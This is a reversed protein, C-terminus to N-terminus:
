GGSQMQQFAAMDMHFLEWVHGDPDAIARTYMFGLDEIARFASGGHALAADAVRDVEARSALSIAILHASERRADAIPLTTFMAFKAHTLLMAYQQEGLVLCAATDDSFQPNFAFGLAEFFARSRPLDTVPLNVFLGSIRTSESTNM